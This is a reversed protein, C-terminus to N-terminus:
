LLGERRTLQQLVRRGWRVDDALLTMLRLKDAFGALLMYGTPHLALSLPETDFRKVQLRPPHFPISRLQVCCHPTSHLPNPHQCAPSLHRDWGGTPHTLCHRRSFLKFTQRASLVLHQLGGVLHLLLPAPIALGVDSAWGWAGVM